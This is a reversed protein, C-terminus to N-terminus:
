NVKQGNVAGRFLGRRLHDASGNPIECLTSIYLVRETSSAKLTSLVTELVCEQSAVGTTGVCLEVHVCVVLCAELEHAHHVDACAM